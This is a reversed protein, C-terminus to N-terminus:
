PFRPCADSKQPAVAIPRLQNAHAPHFGIGALVLLDYLWPWFPCTEVVVELPRYPALAGLLREPEKTSVTTELAVQGMRDLVAITVYKLHADLGAFYMVPRRHRARM